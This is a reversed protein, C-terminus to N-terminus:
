EKNSTFLLTGHMLLFYRLYQIGYGGGFVQILRDLQMCRFPLSEALRSLMIKSARLLDGGFTLHDLLGFRYSMTVLKSFCSSSGNSLGIPPTNMYRRAACNCSNEVSDLGLVYANLASDTEWPYTSTM